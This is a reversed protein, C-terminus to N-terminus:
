PCRPQSDGAAPQDSQGRCYPHNRFRERQWELDGQSRFYDLGTEGIGVIRERKAENVLLEVTPEEGKQENPHVGVTAYVGPHADVLAMMDPFREMNIGVCLFRSVGQDRAFDLAQSLDDQYDRLDLRDLHCHSDVLM